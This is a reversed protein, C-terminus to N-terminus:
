IHRVIIKINMKCPNSVQGGVRLSFCLSLINLFRTCLLMNPDLPPYVSTVNGRVTVGYGQLHSVRYPTVVYSSFM